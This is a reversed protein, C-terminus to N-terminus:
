ALAAAVETEQVEVIRALGFDDRVAVAEVGFHQPLELFKRGDDVISASHRLLGLVCCRRVASIYREEHVHSIVFIWNGTFAVCVRLVVERVEDRAVSRTFKLERRFHADNGVRERKFVAAAHAAISHEHLFSRGIM